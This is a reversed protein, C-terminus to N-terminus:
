FLSYDIVDEQSISTSGAVKNQEAFGILWDVFRAMVPTQTLQELRAFGGINGANIESIRWVGDDDLLFDYGLTHLGRSQYAVVTSAIAEREPATIEALLCEGDGSVNNVWHGSKSRRLYAGYIEGDVVVIRKDGQNVQRLYRVFQLPADTTDNLYDLVEAFCGFSRQGLNFNDVQFQSDEYWIKYVGRGGCSNTHKAIVTQHKLWFSYAIDYDRTVITDPIWASAVKLLFDAEIQEQKHSPSNVFLLQQEWDSLRELYGRPFPKLSRCFALSFKELAIPRTPLNNLNLFDEYTLNDKIATAWVTAVNSTKSLVQATNCHFLNIRKDQALHRYFTPVDGFRDRYPQPNCIILFNQPM